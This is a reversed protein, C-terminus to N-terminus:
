EKTPNILCGPYTCSRKDILNKVIFITYNFLSFDILIYENLLYKDWSSISKSRYYALNVFFSRFISSFSDGESVFSIIEILKCPIVTWFM